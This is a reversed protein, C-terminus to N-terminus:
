RYHEIAQQEKGENDYSWAINLHASAAYFSNALVTRLLQRSEKHSGRKRLLIAENIRTRMRTNGKM